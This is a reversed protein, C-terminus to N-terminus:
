GSPPGSERTECLAGPLLGSEAIGPVGLLSRWATIPDMWITDGLISLKGRLAVRATALNGAGLPREASQREAATRLTRTRLPRWHPRTARSPFERSGGRMRMAARERFAPRSLSARDDDAPYGGRWPRPLSSFAPVGKPEISLVWSAPNKLAGQM